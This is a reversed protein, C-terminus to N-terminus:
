WGLANSWELLIADGPKLTTAPADPLYNKNTIKGADAVKDLVKGISWNEDFFMYRPELGSSMPFMVEYVARREEPIKPDGTAKSKARM